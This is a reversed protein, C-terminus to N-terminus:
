QGQLMLYVHKKLRMFFNIVKILFKVIIEPLFKKMRRWLQNMWAIKMNVEEARVQRIPYLGRSQLSYVGPMGFDDDISAFLEYKPISMRLPLWSIEESGKEFDFPCFKSYTRMLPAGKLIIKKFLSDKFIGQMGIIYTSYRKQINMNEDKGLTFSLIDPREDKKINKYVDHNYRGKWWSYCMYESNTEAMENIIARYKNVDVLNIHDEVWFFIYDSELFSLMKASDYFWGKDSEMTFPILNEGLRERLFFLADFKYKGRANVVWKDAGFKEISHFSDQLRLFREKDNIYFNAFVSFTAM